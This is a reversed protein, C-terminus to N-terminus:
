YAGLEKATNVFTELNEIPTGYELFDASQVICKGGPKVAEVLTRTAKKVDEKTGKQLVNVQDIGALMVYDGSVLAKAKVIDTDGLPPPSFPEVIKVGLQKYSEVLNMIQGCNHYMAPVGTQQCFEIYKKEFPLIYQDYCKKGVFGGAVNGGVCLVDAGSESMARTYDLIRDAAFNMLKEYYEYDELFLSYLIDQEILLSANNFPGHPAWIGVIGDEGVADKMRKVKRNVDAKFAEPMRPEYKIAIELDKANKIPKKTCGYMYTGKRLENISFEQELKGDPTSIVSKKVLTNGNYFEETKIEWNETNHTIDLGGMHIHLPDTVDYLMRLFVDASLQKQIEIVKLQLAPFDWPDIDPYVQTIFHGQDAIFLTVPIRDSIKGNMVNLFRERPTMELVERIFYLEFGDPHM